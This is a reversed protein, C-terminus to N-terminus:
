GGSGGLIPYNMLDYHPDIYSVIRKASNRLHAEMLRCAEEAQRTRIAKIIGMHEDHTSILTQGTRHLAFTRVRVIRNNLKELIETFVHNDCYSFIAAHFREDAEYLLREKNSLECQIAQNLMHECNDLIENPINPTSQRVIEPEIIWRIEYVDLIDQLNIVPIFAGRFSQIEVFGNSALVKLAERIPTRSVKLEEAIKDQDLKEGPEFYGNLIAERLSSIVLNVLSKDEASIPRLTKM